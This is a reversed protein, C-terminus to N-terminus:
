SWPFIKKFFGEKQGLLKIKANVIEMKTQNGFSYVFGNFDGSVRIHTVGIQLKSITKVKKSYIHCEILDNKYPMDVIVCYDYTYNSSKVIKKVLVDELVIQRKKLDNLASEMKAPNEMKDIITKETVVDEISLKKNFVGCSTLAISLLILIAVNKKM